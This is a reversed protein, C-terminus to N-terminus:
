CRNILGSPLPDGLRNVLRDVKNQMTKSRVMGGGGGPGRTSGLVLGTLSSASKARQHRSIMEGGVSNNSNLLSTCAFHLDNASERLKKSTALSLHCGSNSSSANMADGVGFVASAAATAPFFSNLDNTSNIRNAAATAPFFSNLDTTSNMRNAAATAAATAPFFSSLDNTSKSALSMMCSTVSGPFLSSCSEHHQLRKSGDLSLCSGNRKMDARNTMMLGHCNTTAALLKKLDNASDRLQKTTAASFAANADETAATAPEQRASSDQLQNALSCGNNEKRERRKERRRERKGEGGAGEAGAEQLTMSAAGGGGGLSLSPCSRRGTLGVVQLADAKAAADAEEDGVLDWSLSPFAFDDGGGASNNSETAAFLGTM